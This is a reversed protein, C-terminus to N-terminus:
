ALIGRRHSLGLGGTTKGLSGEHENSLSPNDTDLAEFVEFDSTKVTMTNNKTGYTNGIDTQLSCPLLHPASFFVHVAPSHWRVSRLAHLSQDMVSLSRM